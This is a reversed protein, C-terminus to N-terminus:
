LSTASAKGDQVQVRFRAVNARRYDDLGVSQGDISIQAASANGIRVDLPQDSHYTKNSGAPLLGYELRTGNSDVVEVWSAASLNLGLSHSGTGADVSAPVTPKAPSVSSNDLSPFPAMSAMLPEQGQAPAQAVPSPSSPVVRSALSSAAASSTTAPADQQAVPAADLPALHSLDRDLTGRVGLWIMPVVIVATLVVYTAATAYRDLLFRSHSIGGTAVLTPEVQKIRDLEVDISAQNVGLHRAYKGIYSALYVKSDIGDYQDRELQRLVRAPLKLTHACAELELGRAERAAHLRSGFSVTASQTLPVDMNLLNIGFLDAENTGPKTSPPQMSTM